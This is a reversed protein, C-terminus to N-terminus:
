QSDVFRAALEKDLTKVGCLLDISIQNKKSSINYDYVARCSLGKYSLVESRAGGIPPELPATVLAFANKHFALNQEGDTQFTAVANDAIAADLAPTFTITATNIAVTGGTVILYGRNSGVFKILDGAAIVEADTLADVTAATAGATAAGKIAGAVDDIDNDDYAINQDIYFNAGLIRGIEADKIAETNGGRKEAHLIADLSVYRAHTVPHLVVSRMQRPAKQIDLQAMLLALDSIAPTSSVAVHGAINSYLATLLSDVKQAMARMAPQITQESFQVIDLSLEKATVEFSVDLLQDLVVQVSSEVVEQVAITTTVATATFTAPKRITVTSGVHQFESSFDRHVLQAMVLYNELAILSEKAVISPTILTQTM